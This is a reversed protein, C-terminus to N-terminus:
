INHKAEYIGQEIQRSLKDIMIQEHLRKELRAGFDIVLSDNVAKQQQAQEATPQQQQSVGAFTQLQDIFADFNQQSPDKKFTEWADIGPKAAPNDAKFEPINKQVEGVFDNALAWYIKNQQVNDRVTKLFTNVEEARKQKEPDVQQQQQQNNDQQNNNNKNNNNNQVPQQPQNNNNTQQTQEAPQNNNNNNNQVPQQSQNNNNNQQNQDTPQNNNQQQQANDDAENLRKTKNFKRLRM